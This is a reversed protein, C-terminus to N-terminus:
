GVHLTNLPIPKSSSKSARTPEVVISSTEQVDSYSGLDAHFQNKNHTHHIRELIHETTGTRLPSINGLIFGMSSTAQTPATAKNRV